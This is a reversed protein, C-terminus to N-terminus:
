RRSRPKGAGAAPTAKRLPELVALNPALDELSGLGTRARQRWGSGRDLLDRWLRRLDDERFEALVEILAAAQRLDKLAKQPNRARREAYVLM